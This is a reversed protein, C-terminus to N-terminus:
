LETPATWFVHFYEGSYSREVHTRTPPTAEPLSSTCRPLAQSVAYLLSVSLVKTQPGTLAGSLPFDFVDDPPPFQLALSNASRAGDM